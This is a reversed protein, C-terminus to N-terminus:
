WRLMKPGLVAGALACLALTGSYWLAIYPFQDGTGHLAYATAGVGGAVLGAVAGSRKLDTPAGRRLAWVLAAFPATALIPISFLCKRWEHGMLMAEWDAPPVLLLNIVALTCLTAFPLTALALYKSGHEAGPRALRLLWALGVLVVTSAFALKFLLFLVSRTRDLDTRFGYLLATAIIAAAFGFGVSLAVSRTLQRRDVPQLRASLLEILEATRM